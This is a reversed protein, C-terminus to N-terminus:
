GEVVGLDFRGVSRRQTISIGADVAILRAGLSHFEVDVEAEGVRVAVGPVTPAAVDNDVASTRIRVVTREERCVEVGRRLMTSWVLDVRLPGTWARTDFVKRATM